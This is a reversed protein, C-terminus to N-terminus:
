KQPPIISDSKLKQDLLINLGTLRSELAKINRYIERALELQTPPDLLAIDFKKENEEIQFQLSSIETYLNELQM